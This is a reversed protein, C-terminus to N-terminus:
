TRDQTRSYYLCVTVVGDSGAEKLWAIENGGRTLLCRRCWHGTDKKNLSGNLEYQVRIPLEDRHTVDLIDVQM